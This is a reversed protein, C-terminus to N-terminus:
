AISLLPHLGHQSHGEINGKQDIRVGGKTSRSEHVEKSMGVDSVILKIGHKEFVEHIAPGDEMVRHGVIVANIGRKKLSKAIRIVHKEALEGTDQTSDIWLPGHESTVFKYGFTNGHKLDSYSDNWIRNLGEVGQDDLIDAWDENIGGHVYLVDDVQSVLKMSDVLKSYEGGSMFIENMKEWAEEDKTIGYKERLGQFLTIGGNNTVWNNRFKDTMYGSAAGLMMAEHNGVLLEVRGGADEAQKKIKILYDLVEFNTDGRDIYDGLFQVVKNEGIWDGDGDVLGMADLSQRLADIDGHVDPVSFVETERLVESYERRESNRRPLPTEPGFLHAIMDRAALMIGQKEKPAEPNDLSQTDPATKAM